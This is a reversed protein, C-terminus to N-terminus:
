IFSRNNCKVITPFRLTVFLYGVSYNMVRLESGITTSAPLATTIVKDVM